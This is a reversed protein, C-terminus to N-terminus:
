NEFIHSPALRRIGFERFLDEKNRQQDCRQLSEHLVMFSSYKQFCLPTSCLSLKTSSVHRFDGVLKGGVAFDFTDYRLM